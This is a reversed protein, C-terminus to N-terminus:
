QNDIAKTQPAQTPLEWHPISCCVILPRNDQALAGSGKKSVLALNRPM